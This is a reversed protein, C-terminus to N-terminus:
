KKNSESMIFAVLMGFSIMLALVSEFAMPLVEWSPFDGASFSDVLRCTSGYGRM